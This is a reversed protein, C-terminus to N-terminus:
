FKASIDSVQFCDIKFVAECMGKVPETHTKSVYSVVRGKSRKLTVVMPPKMNKTHISFYQTTGADLLIDVSDSDKLIIKRHGATRNSAVMELRALVRTFDQESPLELNRQGHTLEFARASKVKQSNAAAYIIRQNEQVTLGSLHSTKPREPFFLQIQYQSNDPSKYFDETISENRLTRQSVLRRDVLGSQSTEPRNILNNLSSTSPSNVGLKM